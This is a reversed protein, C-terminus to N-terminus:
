RPEALVPASSTVALEDALGPVLQPGVVVVTVEGPAVAVSRASWGVPLVRESARTVELEGGTAAARAGEFAAHRALLFTAGWTVGQLCLFFVVLATGWVAPAEVLVQGGDRRPHVSM